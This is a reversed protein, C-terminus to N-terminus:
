VTEIKMEVIRDLRFQRKEGRLHCFAVLSLADEFGNIHLPTVWRETQEGRGDVYKLFLRKGSSIAEAIDPPLPIDTGSPVVVFLEGQAEQLDGLTRVGKKWLDEIFCNFVERTTLADGLARHANPAPVGLSGAVRSLSNSSFRYCHRALQLTDLVAPACFARSARRMEASVFGLDFPANHCVIVAEHLLSLVLDAIQGFRPADTLDEDRLRNVAAAGPSISREPNVLTAFTAQVLDVRTRVVAIECVREGYRPSLGTTEVDLFAFTLDDLSSTPLPSPM